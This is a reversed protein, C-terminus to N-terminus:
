CRRALDLKCKDTVASLIQAKFNPVAASGVLRGAFLRRVDHPRRPRQPEAHVQRDRREPDEGQLEEWRHAGVLRGELLRRAEQSRRPRQLGAHVQRDRRKTYEGQSETRRALM